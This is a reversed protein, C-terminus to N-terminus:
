IVEFEEFNLGVEGMAQKLGKAEVTRIKVGIRIVVWCSVYPIHGTVVVIADGGDWAWFQTASLWQSTVPHDWRAAITQPSVDKESVMRLQKKM